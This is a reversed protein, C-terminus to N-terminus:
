HRRARPRLGQLAKIRRGQREVIRLVGDEEGRELMFALVKYVSRTGAYFAGQALILDRRRMGAEALIKRYIVWLQRLSPATM